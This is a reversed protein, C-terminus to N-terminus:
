HHATCTLEFNDEAPMTWRWASVLQNVKNEIVVKNLHFGCKM